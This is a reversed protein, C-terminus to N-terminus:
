SGWRTACFTKLGKRVLLVALTAPNVPLLLGALLKALEVAIASSDSTNLTFEKITPSSCIQAELFAHQAVLWRKGREALEASSMPLAQSGALDSGLQVLLEQEAVSFHDPSIRFDPKPM